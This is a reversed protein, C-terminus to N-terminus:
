AVCVIGVDWDDAGVIGVEMSGVELGVELGLGFRLRPIEVGGLGWVDRGEGIASLGEDVAMGETSELLVGAWCVM